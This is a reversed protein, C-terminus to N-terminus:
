ARAYTASIFHCMRSVRHEQMCTVQSTTHLPSKTNKCVHGRHPPMYQLSPARAYMDRVLYCTNSFQHRARAYMASTLHCMSSVHHVKNSIPSCCSSEAQLKFLSSSTKDKQMGLEQLPM